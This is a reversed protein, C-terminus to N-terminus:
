IPYYHRDITQKLLSLARKFEDTVDEPFQRLRDESEAILRLNELQRNVYEVIFRDKRKYYQAMARPDGSVAKFILQKDIAVRAPVMERRNGIVIPVLTEDAEFFDRRVQDDCIPHPQKRPRGNLNGSTGKAFQGKLNRNM